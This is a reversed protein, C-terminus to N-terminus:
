GPDQRAKSKGGGSPPWQYGGELKTGPDLLSVRYAANSIADFIM